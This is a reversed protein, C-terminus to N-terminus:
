LYYGTIDLLFDTSTGTAGNKVRVKGGAVGVTFANALIDGNRVWNINSTGPFAQGNPYISLFGGSSAGISTNVITLNGTVASVNSPVVGTESVDVVREQGGNLKGKAVSTSPPKGGRSDYVREPNTLAVFAASLRVWKSNAGTGGQYCYWLHGGKVAFSGASWSQSTPPIAITNGDLVLPAGQPSSGSLGVGGADSAEGIVGTGKNTFGRVGTGSGSTGTWDGRMGVDGNGKAIGWVGVQDPLSTGSPQVKLTSGTLTTTNTGTNAQGIKLNDGNAAGAPDAGAVVAGAAAAAVIAGGRLFRRRDSSESTDVADPADHSTVPSDNSM